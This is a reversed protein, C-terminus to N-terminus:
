SKRYEKFSEFCQRRTQVPITQEATVEYTPCKEGVVVVVGVMHKNLEQVYKRM